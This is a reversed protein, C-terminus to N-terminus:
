RSASYVRNRIKMKSSLLGNLLTSAKLSRTPSLGPGRASSQFRSLPHHTTVLTHCVPYQYRQSESNTIPSLPLLPNVDLHPHLQRRFEQQNGPGQHLFLLLKIRSIQVGFLRIFVNENEVLFARDVVHLGYFSRTLSLGPGRASSQFRSLPHQITGGQRSM